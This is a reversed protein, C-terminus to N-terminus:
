GPRSRTPWVWGPLGPSPLPDVLSPTAFAIDETVKGATPAAKVRGTTGGVPHREEPLDLAPQRLVDLPDVGNDVVQAAVM